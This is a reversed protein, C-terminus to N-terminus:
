GKKKQSKAEKKRNETNQIKDHGPTQYSRAIWGLTFRSKAIGM